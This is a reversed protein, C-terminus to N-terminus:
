QPLALRTLEFYLDLLAAVIVGLAVWWLGTSFRAFRDLLFLQRDDLARAITFLGLSGFALASALVEITVTQSTVMAHLLDNM